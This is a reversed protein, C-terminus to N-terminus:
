NEGPCHERNTQKDLSHLYLNERGKRRNERNNGSGYRGIDVKVGKPTLELIDEILTTKGSDSAGIVVILKNSIDLIAERVRESLSVKTSM